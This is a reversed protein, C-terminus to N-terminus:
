NSSDQRHRVSGVPAGIRTSSWGSLKSMSSSKGYKGGGVATGVTNGAIGAGVGDGIVAEGVATGVVAGDTKGVTAGLGM